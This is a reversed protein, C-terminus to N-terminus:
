KLYDLYYAEPKTHFIKLPLLLQLNSFDQMDCEITVLQANQSTMMDMSVEWRSETYLECAWSSPYLIVFDPSFNWFLSLGLNIIMPWKRGYRDALIGFVIAGVSRLMLTVTM